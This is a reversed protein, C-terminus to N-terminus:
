WRVSLQERDTSDIPLTLVVRDGPEATAAQRLMARFEARRQPDRPVRISVTLTTAEPVSEAVGAQQVGRHGMPKSVISGPRIGLVDIAWVVGGGGGLTVSGQCNTGM